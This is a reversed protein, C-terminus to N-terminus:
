LSCCPICVVLVHMLKKSLPVDVESEVAPEAIKEARDVIQEALNVMEEAMTLYQDSKAEANEDGYRKAKEEELRKKFAELAEKGQGRAFTVPVELASSEPPVSTTESFTTTGFIRDVVKPCVKSDVGTPAPSAAISGFSKRSVIWPPAAGTPAPAVYSQLRPSSLSPALPIQRPSMLQPAVNLNPVSGLNLTPM